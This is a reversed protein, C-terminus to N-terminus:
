GARPVPHRPAPPGAPRRLRAPDRAIPVGAAADAVALDRGAPELILLNADYTLTGLLIAALLRQVPVTYFQGSATAPNPQLPDAVRVEDREHDYGYLVVFHGTPDGRVDDATTGRERACRYLFTASLGTLIPVGRSLHQELLRPTLDEFRVEGGRELYDLYAGTAIHLTSARKHELQKNLRDRLDPAGPLFWTPDFMQLNYTYILARYGLALAHCALLVALTGGQELQPVERRVQALAIDHGWYRYVSHLCTPGCSTDDPQSLIELQLPVAM